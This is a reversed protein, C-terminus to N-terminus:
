GCSRSFLVLIKYDKTILVGLTAPAARFVAENSVLQNVSQNMVSYGREEWDRICRFECVMVALSTFNSVMNVQTDCTVYCMDCTVHWTDLTM